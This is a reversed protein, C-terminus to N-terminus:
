NEFFRKNNCNKRGFKEGLKEQKELSIKDFGGQYFQM